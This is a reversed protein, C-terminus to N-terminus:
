KHFTLEGTIVPDVGNWGVRIRETWKGPYFNFPAGVTEGMLKAKEFDGTGHTAVLLGTYDGPMMLNPSQPLVLAYVSTAKGVEKGELTGIGYPNPVNAPTGQPYNLPEIFTMCWTRVTNGEGTETNFNFDTIIEVRGIQLTPGMFLGYSLAIGRVHLITDDGTWWVKGPDLLNIASATFACPVVTPKAAMAPVVAAFLMSLALVLVVVAVRKM